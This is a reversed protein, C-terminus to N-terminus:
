PVGYKYDIWQEMLLRTPHTASHAARFVYLAAFDFNGPAGGGALAGLIFSYKCDEDVAASEYAGSSFAANNQRKLWNPSASTGNAMSTYTPTDIAVTGHGSDSLVAAGTKYIASRLNVTNFYHTTGPQTGSDTTSFLYNVGTVTKPNFVLYYTCGTGDQMFQWFDTTQNSTAYQTGSLRSTYANNMLANTTSTAVTGTVTLVRSADIVDKYTVINGGSTTINAPDSDFWIDTPGFAARVQQALGSVARSM